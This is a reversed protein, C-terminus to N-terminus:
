NVKGYTTTNIMNVVIKDFIKVTFYNLVLNDPYETRRHM